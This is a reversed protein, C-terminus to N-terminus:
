EILLTGASYGTTRGGRYVLVSVLYDGPLALDRMRFAHRTIVRTEGPAIPGGVDYATAIMLNVECDRPEVRTEVLDPIALLSWGIGCAGVLYDITEDGVNTITLRSKMYGPNTSDPVLAATVEVPTALEVGVVERCGMTMVTATLLLMARM